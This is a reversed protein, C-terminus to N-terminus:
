AWGAMGILCPSIINEFSFEPNLRSLSLLIRSGAVGYDDAM